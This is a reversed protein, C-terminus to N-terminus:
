YKLQVTTSSYARSTGLLLLSSSYQVTSQCSTGLYLVLCTRTSTSTASQTCTCTSTSYKYLYRTQMAADISSLHRHSSGLSQVSSAKENSTDVRYKYRSSALAVGVYEILNCATYSYQTVPFRCCLSAVFWFSVPVTNVVLRALVSGPETPVVIM